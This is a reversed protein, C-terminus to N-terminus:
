RRGRRPAKRVALATGLALVGALVDFGPSKPSAAPNVRFEVQTSRTEGGASANVTASIRLTYKGPDLGQDTLAFSYPGREEGPGMPGVERRAPAIDLRAAFPASVEVVVGSVAESTRLSLNLTANGGPPIEARSLSPSLDLSLAAASVPLLLVVLLVMGARM